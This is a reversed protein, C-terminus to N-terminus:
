GVTPRSNETPRTLSCVTLGGGTLFDQICAQWSSCVCTHALSVAIAPEAPQDDV